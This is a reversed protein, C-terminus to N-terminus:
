SAQMRQGAPGAIVGAELLAPLQDTYGAERLVENTHSGPALAPPLEGHPLSRFRGVVGLECGGGLGPHDRHVVLGRQIVAGDHILERIERYAHVAVGHATIRQEWTSASAHRFRRGLEDDLRGDLVANVGGLGEVRALRELDGPRVAALYLWGRSTEYLRDLAAWGMAAPGSPETWVQGDFDIMFPLQHLTATRSLSTEVRQGHGSAARELLALLIGFAALHGTAHDNVIVPHLVPHDGGFRLSMGTVAEALHEHGRHLERWGGHSHLNLASYVIGPDLDRIRGEGVGFRDASAPTFNVHVIDATRAITDSIRRGEVTRLDLYVLRKGANTTRHASFASPDDSEANGRGVGIAANNIKIVEAGYEALVRGAIPGALLSTYDVVRVGALPPRRATTSPPRSTRIRRDPEALEALISARDADPIRRSYPLSAPTRSLGVGFGAQWTPGFQPDDVPIVCRSARAHEDHLWQQSTQAVAFPAALEDQCLREWEDADREAFLQTLLIEAEEEGARDIRDRLEGPLFEQWFSIIGRPPLGCHIVWEGDRARYTRSYHGAPNRVPAARLKPEIQDVSAPSELYTALAAFGADYLPIEILDGRGDRRCALVAALVSHSAIMAAFTSAMPLASFRPPGGDDYPKPPYLGAASCVGGEWARQAARPDDHAFGPLSCWILGPNPEVLEDYSLGWRTMTGPRFGEIVVDARAILQRATGLDDRNHLDLVISRKGRQLIANVPHDWRPGGPPDVRIVDAGFDALMMATLPGALYQGFDVVRLGALVQPTRESAISKACSQRDIDSKLSM